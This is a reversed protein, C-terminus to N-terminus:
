SLSIGAGDFFGCSALAATLDAPDTVYNAYVGDDTTEKGPVLITEIGDQHLNAWAGWNGPCSQILVFIHCPPRCAFTTGLQSGNPAVIWEAEAMLRLQDAFSFYQFDVSEFGWPALLAAIEDQNVCRRKLYSGRSLFLRRRVPSLPEPPVVTQRLQDCMKPSLTCLRYDIQYDPSLTPPTWYPPSAVALRDVQIMEGKHVPLIHRDSGIQLRLAEMHTAPMAADVLIPWDAYDAIKTFLHWKPMYESIWHGFQETRYGTMMIARDLQAMVGEFIVAVRSGHYFVHDDGVLNYRDFGRLAIDHLAQTGGALVFDTRPSVIADHIEAVYLENQTATGGEDMVQGRWDRVPRVVFDEAPQILHYPLGQTACWQQFSMIEGFTVVCSANPDAFAEAVATMHLRTNEGIALLTLLANRFLHRRDKTLVEALSAVTSWDAPDRISLVCCEAADLMPGLAAVTVGTLAALRPSATGRRALAKLHQTDSSGDKRLAAALYLVPVTLPSRDLFRSLVALAEQTAGTVIQHCAVTMVRAIQIEDPELDPLAEHWLQVVPNRM